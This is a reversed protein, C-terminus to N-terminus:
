FLFPGSRHDLLILNLDPGCKKLLCNFHLVREGLFPNRHKIKKLKTEIRKLAAEGILRRKVVKNRREQTKNSRRLGISNGRQNSRKRKFRGAIVLELIEKFLSFPIKVLDVGSKDLQNLGQSRKPRNM